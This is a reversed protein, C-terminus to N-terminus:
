CLWLRQFGRCVHPKELAGFKGRSLIHPDVVRFSHDLQDSVLDCPRDYSPGPRPLQGGLKLLLTAEVFRAESVRPVALEGAQRERDVGLELLLRDDAVDGEVAVLAVHV